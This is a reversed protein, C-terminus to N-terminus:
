GPPWRMPRAGILHVHIHFVTQGAEPGTNIVTRYGEDLGAERALQGAVLMGNRGSAGM